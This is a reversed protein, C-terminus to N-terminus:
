SARWGMLAVSHGEPDKFARLVLERGEARQLPVADHAFAGGAAEVARVAVDWIVPEFYLTADGGPKQDGYTPGIMLRVGAGADLFIMNNTEFLEALGLARKYFEALTRPDASALAIQRIGTVIPEPPKPPPSATM